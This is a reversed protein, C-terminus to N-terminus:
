APQLAMTYYRGHREDGEGTVVWGRQKYFQVARDNDILCKLHAPRGLRELSANLLASGVGRGTSDPDVYLHHIIRDAQGLAIFGVPLSNITAVFLDEGETDQDFDELALDSRSVWPMAQLRATLYIDRLAPRDSDSFTRIDFM